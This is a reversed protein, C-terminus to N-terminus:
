VKETNTKEKNRERKRELDIEESYNQKPTDAKDNSVQTQFVHTRFCNQFRLHRLSDDM